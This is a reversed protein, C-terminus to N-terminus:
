YTVLWTGSVIGPSSIPTPMILRPSIAVSKIGGPKFWRPLHTKDPISKQFNFSFPMSKGHWIFIMAWSLKHPHSKKQIMKHNEDWLIHNCSPFFSLSSATKQFRLAVCLHCQFKLPPYMNSTSCHRNSDQLGFSARNCHAIHSVLICHM